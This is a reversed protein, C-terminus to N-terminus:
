PKDDRRFVSMLRSRVAPDMGEVDTETLHGALDIVTRWQALATACGPCTVLHRDIRAREDAPLADDLYDTVLEVFDQCDIDDPQESV